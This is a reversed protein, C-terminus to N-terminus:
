MSSRHSICTGIANWPEVVIQLLARHDSVGWISPFMTIHAIADSLPTIIM